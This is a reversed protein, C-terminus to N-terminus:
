EASVDGLVGSDMSTYWSYAMSSQQTSDDADHDRVTTYADIDLFYLIYNEDCLMVILMLSLM